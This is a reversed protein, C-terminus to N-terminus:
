AKWIEYLKGSKNTAASRYEHPYEIYEFFDLYQDWDLILVMSNRLAAIRADHINMRSGSELDAKISALQAAHINM